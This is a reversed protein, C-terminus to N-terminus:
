YELALWPQGQKHTIVFIEINPANMELHSRKLDFNNPDDDDHNDINNDCRCNNNTGFQLYADDDELENKGLNIFYFLHEIPSWQAKSPSIFV